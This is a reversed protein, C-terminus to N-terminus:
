PYSVEPRQYLAMHRGFLSFRKALQLHEECWERARPRLSLMSQDFPYIPPPGDETLFVFQSKAIRELADADQEEFIGTPLAMVFPLWVRHREYCVVCLIRADLCETVHDVSVVPEKLGASCSREFIYDALANVKQADSAFGGTVPARLQTAVFYWTGAAVIGAALGRGVWATPQRRLLAEWATLVLVVAGPTLASLVVVSKQTHITLIFAPVLLFIWAPMWWSRLSELRDAPARRAFAAAALVCVSLGVIGLFFRGLQDVLFHNVLFLVSELPLLHADRIKSEPGTIHGVYYYEWIWHRNLWYEPVAMTAAIVAALLLNLLRRQRGSEFLVWVMTAAFIFVFYTGTLFRTILTFGVAAGCAASWPRSRFGDTLLAIALTVGLTCMAFHDLRFDMASGATDAWVWHLALPLAAAAVCLARSGSRRGIAFALAAQWAVLALGNLFLAAGRSPGAVSFVLLAFFDHLTGQASPNVLTQWLGPWFGHLRAYEYGLYAESLYQIQDTWRPWFPSYHRTTQFSFYALEASFFALMALVLLATAHRCRRPDLPQM